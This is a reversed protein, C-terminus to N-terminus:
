TRAQVPVPSRRDRQYHCSWSEACCQRVEHVLPPARGLPRRLLDLSARQALGPVRQPNLGLQRATNYRNVVDALTAGGGGLEAPVARTLYGAQQLEQFDETFFANREDYGAARDHCRILVEDSLVSSAPTAVVTM